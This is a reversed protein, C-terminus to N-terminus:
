PETYSVPFARVLGELARVLLWHGDPSFVGDQLDAGVHGTTEVLGTRWNMIDVSRGSFLIDSFHFGDPAFAGLWAQCGEGKGQIEKGTRVNVEMFSCGKTLL